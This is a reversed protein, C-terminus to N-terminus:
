LPKLLRWHEGIRCAATSISQRDVIVVVPRCPDGNASIYREGAIRLSASRGSTMALNRTAGPAGVDFLSTAAAHDQPAVSDWFADDPVAAITQATPPPTNMRQLADCGGLAAGGVLALSIRLVVRAPLFRRRPTSKATSITGQM